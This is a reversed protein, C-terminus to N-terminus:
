PYLGPLDALCAIATVPCTAPLIVPHDLEVDLRGEILDIMGQQHLRKADM